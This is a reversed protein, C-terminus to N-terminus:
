VDIVVRARLGGEGHSTVRLDHYTASKLETELEGRDLPRARLDAVLGGEGPADRLEFTAEVVLLSECVALYIVENLWQVLRDERDLTDLEVRHDVLAVAPRAGGRTLLAAAARAAERLLEAEDPAWLEVAVDGTHDVYRHGARGQLARM